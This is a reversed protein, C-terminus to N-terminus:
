SNRELWEKRQFKLVERRREWGRGQLLVSSLCLM